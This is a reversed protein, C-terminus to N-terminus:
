RRLPHSEGETATAVSAPDCQFPGINLSRPAIPCALGSAEGDRCQQEGCRDRDRAEKTLDAKTRDELQTGRHDLTGAAKADAIRAAKAKSAGDRRLVEALKDDKISQGRDKAM